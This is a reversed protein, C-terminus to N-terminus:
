HNLYITYVGTDPGECKGSGGYNEIFYGEITKISNWQLDPNAAEALDRGPHDCTNPVGPADVCTVRLASYSIVHFYTQSTGGSLVLTDEWPDDPLTTHFREPCVTDPVGNCYSDFVPLWVISGIIDGVAQFVSNEVGAQGGFWTHTKLIGGFGNCIWDKLEAAGGGGGSLDLWSRNGGAMLDNYGDNDLDCDLTNEPLGSNPPDQCYFDTNLNQSDMFVYWPGPEGVTGYEIGCENLDPDEGEPPQCAWAVPLVGEIECPVYCGASAIATTTIVDTGFIGALFTEHPITTTVTIEKGLIDVEAATAGNRDIAYDLAQPEALETNGSCLAEAGALAGADAANQAERRRTYGFGGDIVLGALAVMVVMIVAFIILNQGKENPKSIDSM